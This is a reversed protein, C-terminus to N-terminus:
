PAAPTGDATQGQLTAPLSDESRPPIRPMFATIHTGRGAASAIHLAGGSAHLRHRMGALGHSSRSLRTADFGVGDDAIKVEIGASTTRLTISVHRAKAHRGANTLAEQVTRYITLAQDPDPEIADFDTDVPIGANRSFERALIELAPVLGLNGLVSPHLNDMIRRKLEIAQNLTQNLHQLRDTLESPEAPLRSKLRAVDLKAATMLAGLEDHLERALRARESEVAHQLYTALDSLERTRADVESELADRAAELQERQLADIERLRQRQQVFRVFAILVALTCALFALRSLKVLRAYQADRARLLTRTRDILRAGHRRLEATQRAGSEATAAFDAAEVKGEGRLRIALSLENLRQALLQHFRTLEDTGALYRWVPAAAHDLQDQIRRVAREYTDLFRTEGTLMYGRQSSEALVLESIQTDIFTRAVDIDRRANNVDILREYSHDVLWLLAFACLAAIIHASRLTRVAQTASVPAQTPTAHM